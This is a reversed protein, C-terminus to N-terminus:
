QVTRGDVAAARNGDARGSREAARGGAAVERQRHLEGVGGRAIRRGPAPGETVAASGGGLIRAVGVGRGALVVDSQGHGVGVARIAGGAVIVDVHGIRVGAAVARHMHVVDVHVTYLAAPFEVDPGFDRDFVVAARCDGVSRYGDRQRAGAVRGGAGRHRVGASHHRERRLRLHSIRCTVAALHRVDRM